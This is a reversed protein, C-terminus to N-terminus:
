GSIPRAGRRVLQAIGWVADSMNESRLPLLPTLPLAGGGTFQLYGGVTRYLMRGTDRIRTM